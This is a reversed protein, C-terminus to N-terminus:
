TGHDELYSCVKSRQIRATGGPLRRAAATSTARAQAGQLIRSLVVNPNAHSTKVYVAEMGTCIVRRVLLWSVSASNGLRGENEPASFM